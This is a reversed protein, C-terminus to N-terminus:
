EEPPLKAAGDIFEDRSKWCLFLPLLKKSALTRVYKMDQESPPSDLVIFWRHAPSRWGYYNYELLQGWAERIALTTTMGYCAKLEARCLSRGDRFEVVTV